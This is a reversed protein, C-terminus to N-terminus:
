SPSSLSISIKCVARPISNEEIFLVAFQSFANPPERSPGHLGSRKYRGANKSRREGKRM